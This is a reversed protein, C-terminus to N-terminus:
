ARPNLQWIRYNLLTAFSVWALYPVMLWFALTSIPAFAAMTAAIAALLCAIEIVAIGPRRWGFFVVSWLMNLFLQIYFLSLATTGQSWGVNRWVFWASVAMLAYLASWVPAFIWNPPSFRPKRLQLYWTRVSKSTFWSGVAAAAFTCALFFLLWFWQNKAM